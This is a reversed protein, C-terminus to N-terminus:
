RDVTILLNDVDIQVMFLEIVENIRCSTDFLTQAFAHIRLEPFTRPKLSLISQMDSDSFVSATQHSGSSSLTDDTFRCTRASM